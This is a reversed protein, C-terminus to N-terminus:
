VANSRPATEQGSGVVASDAADVSSDDDLGSRSDLIRVSVKLLSLDM